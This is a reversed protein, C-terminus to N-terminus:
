PVSPEDTETLLEGTTDVDALEAESMVPNKFLVAFVGATVFAFVAPCIWFPMWDIAVADPSPDTDFYAQLPGSLYSGATFGIGYIALVLLGQAQSRISKPAAKDVYLQGTVFFFDYCIGHILIGALIMWESENLTAGAFLGYRVVWSLMGVLLMWKVGLRRFFWPMAVMFGVESVQGLTMKSTADAVNMENAFNAAYSYYLSLPLCILTSGILFVAFSRDKMLQLADIGLLGGISFAQDKGGPPTSPLSMAYLGLAIAAVGAVRFQDPSNQVALLSGVTVGAAIWGITGFVRIIPFEADPDKMVNFSISNALGLTPAYCCMQLFILLSFWQGSSKPLEAAAAKAADEGQAIIEAGIFSADCYQAIGFFIAGGVIHLVGFVFQAQFFRDALYSFFLPAVAAAFYAAAYSPPILEAHVVAPLYIGTSVFWAGWVFFQLFMMLGLRATTM